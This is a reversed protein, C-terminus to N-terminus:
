QAVLDTVTKPKPNVTIGLSRSDTQEGILRNTEDSLDSEIGNQNMATAVFYWLGQSLSEIVISTVAPDPVRQALTYPGGAQQGSYIRYGDPDTYPSGDTNETPPSWTLTTSDEIWACTLNYTAGSTIADLTENGAAAKQGSWDGSAQCADAPPLTQWTLVPIVREVGVTVEASFQIQPDDDAAAPACCLVLLLGVALIQMRWIM